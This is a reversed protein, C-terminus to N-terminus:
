HKLQSALKNFFEKRVKLGERFDMRDTHSIEMSLDSVTVELLERLMEEEVPALEITTM